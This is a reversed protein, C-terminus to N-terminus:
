QLKTYGIQWLNRAWVGEVEGVKLANPGKYAFAPLGTKQAFANSMNEAIFRERVDWRNVLRWIMEFRQNDYSRVAWIADMSLYMIIMGHFWHGRMQILGLHQM